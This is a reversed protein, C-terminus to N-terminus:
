RRESEAEGKVEGDRKAGKDTWGPSLGLNESFFGLVGSGEGYADCAKDKKEGLGPIAVSPAKGFPTEGTELLKSFNGGFASALQYADGVESVTTSSMVSIYSAGRSWIIAAVREGAPNLAEAELSLSGLGFPVRPSVMPIVSVFSAAVSVGAAIENTTGIHTVTAQVSLDAPATPDVVEFRKSLGECLVRDIRNAVLARDANSIGTGIGEAYRTPSIRVTRAAQLKEKDVWLQSKAQTGNSTELDQYSSLSGSRTMPASACAALLLLPLTLSLRRTLDRAASPGAINYKAYGSDHPRALHARQQLM